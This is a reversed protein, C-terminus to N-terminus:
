VNTVIAWAVFGLVGVGTVIAIVIPGIKKQHCAKVKQNLKFDFHPSIHKIEHNIQTQGANLSSNLEFTQTSLIKESNESEIGFSSISIFFVILLSLFKSKTM